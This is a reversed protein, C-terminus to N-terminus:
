RGDSAIPNLHLRCDVLGLRDSFAQRLM